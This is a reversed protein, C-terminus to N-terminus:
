DVFVDVAVSKETVSHMYTKVVDCHYKDKQYEDLAKEDDLYVNLIVDYSRASGLFDCYVDIERVQPVNGKMSLLVEKAKNKGEDSNDTLKFCITHRVM